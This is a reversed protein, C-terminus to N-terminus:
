VTCYDNDDGGFLQQIQHRDLWYCEKKNYLVPVATNELIPQVGVFRRDNKRYPDEDYAQMVFQTGAPFVTVYPPLSRELSLSPLTVNRILTLITGIKM